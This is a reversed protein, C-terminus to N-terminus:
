SYGAYLLYYHHHHHNHYYYCYYYVQFMECVVSIVATQFKFGSRHPDRQNLLIVLSFRCTVLSSSSSLLLLLLLLVIIIGSFYNWPFLYSVRGIVLASCNDGVVVHGM